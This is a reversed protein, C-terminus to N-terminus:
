KNKRNWNQSLYKSDQLPEEKKSKVEKKNKKWNQSLHGSSPEVVASKKLGRKKRNITNSPMKALAGSLEGEEKRKRGAKIEEAIAPLQVVWGDMGEFVESPIAYTIPEAKKGKENFEIEFAGIDPYAPVGEMFESLYEFCPIHYIKLGIRSQGRYYHLHAGVILTPRKYNPHRLLNDAIKKFETEPNISKHVFLINESFEPFSITFREPNWEGNLAKVVQYDSDFGTGKGRHYGSGALGLVKTGKGILPLLLEQAFNVQRDVSTTILEVSSKSGAGDVIDGLLCLYDPNKHNPIFDTEWENIIWEQFSNTFKDFASRPTLGKRSGVHTDGVCLIRM